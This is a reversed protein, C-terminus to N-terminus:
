LPINGGGNGCLGAHSLGGLAGALRRRTDHPEVLEDVFGERAAVAASVHEDAYLEALRDREADPDDAEALARKHVIGVAQKSGMIGIEADPWALSLDAGLDKSNMCIYAGGYAKRLVVTVKPVVAEAFAHLLKAGHRIVGAAEQKTGPLFGPTDVLVVLPLGFANCTRVFRAAKQSAAADIVGGLYWPQNALVGVPRGEIRALATVMNRAWRESVELLEGGDVLAEIVGRIDYVKRGSHPVVASPDLSRVAAPPGLPPEEGARQPLYALLERVTHIADLDDAALFQSVGNQSHVGPGGLGAADVDEGMVERVVGPGTLFMASEETMVVFDTLAPSYSGGGASVGSIVSIQPVRGSLRVNHRFIRGYGALAAIGDDMRAGGSAVFGVVPAAAREALEMVRVITDAHAEGLSGGAFSQDQAYCYVPRGGVSGAAGVVGDGARMRKSERRPLVTSRIVQLSGRDCLAELRGYADLTRPRPEEVVAVAPRGNTTREALASM